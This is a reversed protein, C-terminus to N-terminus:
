NADKYSTVSCIIAKIRLWQTAFLDFFSIASLGLVNNFTVQNAKCIM